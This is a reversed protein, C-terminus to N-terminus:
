LLMLGSRVKSRGKRRKRREEGRGEEGRDRRENEEGKRRRRKRETRNRHCKEAQEKPDIRHTAFDASAVREWNQTKFATKFKYCSALRM